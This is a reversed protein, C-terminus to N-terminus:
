MLMGGLASPGRMPMAMCCMYVLTGTGNCKMKLGSIAIEYKICSCNDLVIPTLLSSVPSFSAKSAPEASPCGIWTVEYCCVNQSM